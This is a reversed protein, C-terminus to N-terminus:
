EKTISWEGITKVHGFADSDGNPRVTLHFARELRDFIHQRKPDYISTSVEWNGPMLRLEDIRFDVYGDGQVAGFDLNCWQGTVHFGADSHISIAFHPNVVEIKANYHMRITLQEGSPVFSSEDGSADLFEVRTV